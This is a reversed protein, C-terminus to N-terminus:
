NSRCCRSSATRWPVVRSSCASSTSPARGCWPSLPRRSHTYIVTAVANATDHFGNVFEFGLAVLLAVGLLAFPLWNTTPTGTDRIDVYLNYAVLFLATAVISRFAVVARPDLTMDLHPRAKRAPIPLPGSHAIAGNTMSDQSFREFSISSEHWEAGSSAEYLFGLM